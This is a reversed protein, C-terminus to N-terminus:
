RAMLTVVAQHMTADGAGQQIGGHGVAQEGGPDAPEVVTVAHGDRLLECASTAGVIGAGIVLDGKDSQSVYGHVHNSMVVTDLIPKMPESVLAQLPHSEVPLKFGAMKALVGSNGAAVTEHLHFRGDAFVTCVRPDDRAPM